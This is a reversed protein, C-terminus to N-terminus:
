DREIAAHSVSAPQSKARKKKQSKARKEADLKRKINSHPVALLGSLTRTFKEFPTPSDSKVGGDYV